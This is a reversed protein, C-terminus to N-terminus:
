TTARAWSAFDSSVTSGTPATRSASSFKASTTAVRDVQVTLRRPPGSGPQDRERGPRPLDRAARRQRLDRTRRARHRARRDPRGWADLDDVFLTCHSHGAHEPRAEIYVYRHEGVEWVAEVDNPLFAPESGWFCQYWARGRTIDSVSIGSFLDVTM